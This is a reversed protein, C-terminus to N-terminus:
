YVQYSSTSQAVGMRLRNPLQDSQELRALYAHHPELRQRAQALRRRRIEAYPALTEDKLLDPAIDASAEMGHLVFQYNAASFCQVRHDFDYDNPTDESWRAALTRLSPSWTEPDTNERWFATDRRKSFAYHAKIFDVINEYHRAMVANFHERGDAGSFYRPLLQTVMWGAMEILYIGTSELPEVFGASLGIAVTNGRWQQEHYGVKLKLHRAELTEPTGGVHDALVSLAEDDSQHSSSYVHGIGRRNTLNIDWVWGAEKAIARTFPRVSEPRDVAQRTVVARDCFLEDTKSIFSAAGDADLLLARFGTCDIYLDASLQGSKSVTVSTINGDEGRSVDVVNELIHRVGRERAVGSLFDALKGADLHYAYPLMGQYPADEFRKPALGSSALAQQVGAIDAFPGRQEPVVRRWQHALQEMGLRLPHEFPHFYHEGPADIPSQTWQEFRIGHKFTADCAKMFTHEDVGMAALTVGLSPTTAEGVGVSPIDPSEVLTVELPEGLLAAGKAKLLNATIWGATGGGVILIRRRNM